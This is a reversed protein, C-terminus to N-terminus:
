SITLGAGLPIVTGNDLTAVAGNSNISVSAVTGSVTAGTSDTYSATRGIVGDAQSLAQSSLLADLKSNTQVAQEVTSMQAYQSMFQSTDTPDTPDQNQMQSILLQLFTNYDVTNNSNADATGTTSNITANLNNSPSITSTPDIASTM